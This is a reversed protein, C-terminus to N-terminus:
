LKEKALKILDKAAVNCAAFRMRETELEAELEKVRAELEAYSPMDIKGKACGGLGDPQQCVFDCEHGCKSM